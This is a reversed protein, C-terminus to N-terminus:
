DIKKAPHVLVGALLKEGWTVAAETPALTDIRKCTVGAMALLDEIDKEFRVGKHLLGRPRTEDQAYISISVPGREM